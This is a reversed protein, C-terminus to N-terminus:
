NIIIKGQATEEHFEGFFKYEGPKLPGIFVVIRGGNGPVIKERNLDFSEFEEIEPDDNIVVLKIKKNAPLNLTQPNFLHNKIHIEYTLTEEEKCSTINIFIFLLLLKLNKLM